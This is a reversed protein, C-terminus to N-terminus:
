LIFVMRVSCQTVGYAPQGRQRKKYGVKKPIDLTGLTLPVFSMRVLLGKLEKVKSVKPV